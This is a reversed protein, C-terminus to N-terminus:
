SAVVRSSALSTEGRGHSMSIVGMGLMSTLRRRYTSGLEQELTRCLAMEPAAVVDSAALPAIRVLGLVGM